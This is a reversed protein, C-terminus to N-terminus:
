PSVAGAVADRMLATPVAETQSVPRPGKKHQQRPHQISNNRIDEVCTVYGAGRHHDRM